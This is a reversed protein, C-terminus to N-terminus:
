IRAGTDQIFTFRGVGGGSDNIITGCGGDIATCCNVIDKAKNVILRSNNAVTKGSVIDIRIVASCGPDWINYCGPCCGNHTAIYVCLFGYIM